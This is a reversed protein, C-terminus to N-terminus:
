IKLPKQYPNTKRQQNLSVIHSIFKDFAYVKKKSSSTEFPINLSDSYTKNACAAYYNMDFFDRVLHESSASYNGLRLKMQELFQEREETTFVEHLIARHAAKVDEIPHGRATIIGIPSAQLNAHKFRERAPGYAGADLADFLDQTLKGDGLRMNRFCEEPDNNPFRWGEQLKSKLEREPIEIREKGNETERELFVICNTHFLNDDIDFAYAKHSM